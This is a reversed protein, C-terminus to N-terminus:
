RGSWIVVGGLGGVLLGGLLGIFAGLPRLDGTDEVPTGTLSEFPASLLPGALWGLLVCVVVAIAITKVTQAQRNEAEHPSILKRSAVVPEDVLMPEDERWPAIVPQEVLLGTASAFPDPEPEREPVDFRPDPVGPSGCTPCTTVGPNLPVSCWQCRLDPQAAPTVQRAGDDLAGTQRSSGSAPSRSPEVSM